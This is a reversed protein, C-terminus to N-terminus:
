FSWVRHRCSNHRSFIHRSNANRSCHTAGTPPLHHAQSHTRLSPAPLYVMPEAVLFSPFHQLIDLACTYRQENVKTQITLMGADLFICKSFQTLRWAHLKTYSVGIDPQELLALKLVKRGLSRVSLVVNFVSVAPAKPICSNLIGRTQYQLQIPSQYLYQALPDLGRGHKLEQHLLMHRNM